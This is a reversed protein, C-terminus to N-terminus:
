CPRCTRTNSQFPPFPWWCVAHKENSFGDIVSDIDILYIFFLLPSLPCGQKVGFSPQGAAPEDDGDLQICCRTNMLIIYTKPSQCCTRRTRVFTTGCKAEPFPTMHKNSILATYLRSSGMQMKQAADKLHWLIFLPHLTGRGPPFGFQTDPIKSHKICWDQVMSRLLNAYLRCLTGSVAVMRYNGPITVQGKKHIPTFKAEKWSRFVNAKTILLKFLTTIRPAICACQHKGVRELTTQARTQLCRKHISYNHWVFVHHEYWLHPYFGFSM